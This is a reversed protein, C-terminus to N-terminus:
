PVRNLSVCGRWQTCSSCGKVYIAKVLAGGDCNGALRELKLDQAGVASVRTLCVAINYPESCQM